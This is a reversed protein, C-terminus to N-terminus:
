LNKIADVPKMRSIKILPLYSVIWTLVFSAGFIILYSLWDMMVFTIGGKIFGNNSIVSPNYWGYVFTNTIAIALVAAIIGILLVELLFILKVDSSKCGLAKFIGIEKKRAVIGLSVMGIMLVVCLVSAVGAIIGWIGAEGGALYEEFYFGIPSNVGVDFDKRLTKLTNKLESYDTVKIFITDGSRYKFYNESINDSILDPSVYISPYSSDTEVGIIKKGKLSILIENLDSQIYEVDITEGIHAPVFDKYQEIYDDYSDWKPYGYPEIRDDFLKNYMSINLVVEDDALRGAHTEYGNEGFIYYSDYYPETAQTNSGQQIVRIEDDKKLVISNYAITIKFINHIDYTGIALPNFFVNEIKRKSLSEGIFEHDLYKGLNSHGDWNEDFGLDFSKYIGKITSYSYKLHGLNSYYEWVLRKGIMQEYPIDKPSGDEFSYEDDKIMSDIFLDSYYKDSDAEIPLKEGHFEVFFDADDAYVGRRYDIGNDELWKVAAENICPEFSVGGSIDPDNDPSFSRLNILTAGNETYTKAINREADMSLSVQALVTITVALTISLTTIISRIWHKKFNNLAMRLKYVFPIKHKGNTLTEPEEPQEPIEPVTNKVIEGDKIEIIGDGYKEASERDHTVVIVLKDGSIEKLLDFIEAGTESDLNGTPEDALIIKSRKLLARAIAVRQKQGGSLESVMRKGYESMGVKELAEAIKRQEYKRKQMKLVLEINDNVNFQDLLNYEQFVFGVVENRYGDLQKATLDSLSRGNYIIEGDDAKDLGGIVNLLTSKGSGSKGLLFYLGKEGLELSVGKLAKCDTGKKSRYTKNVDILKLM